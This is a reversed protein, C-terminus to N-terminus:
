LSSFIFFLCWFYWFLSVYFVQLNSPMQTLTAGNFVRNALEGWDGWSVENGSADRGKSGHFPQDQTFHYFLFENKFAHDNTVHSFFGQDLLLNGVRVADEENIVVGERVMWDVAESGIFSHFSFPVVVVVDLCLSLSFFSGFPFVM